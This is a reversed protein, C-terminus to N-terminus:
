SRTLPRAEDVDSSPEKVIVHLNQVPKGEGCETIIELIVPYRGPERTQVVFGTMYVNPPSRDAPDSIHYHNDQDIFHSPNKKPSQERNIGVKIFHNLVSQPLPRRSTDGHFGFVLHVQRYSFKPRMRIQIAVASHCPNGARFPRKLRWVRLKHQGLNFWIVALLACGAVAPGLWWYEQAAAM